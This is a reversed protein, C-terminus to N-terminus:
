RSIIDTRTRQLRVAYTKLMEMRKLTRGSKRQRSRIEARLTHMHILKKMSSANM